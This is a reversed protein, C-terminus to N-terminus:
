WRLVDLTPIHRQQAPGIQRCSTPTEEEDVNTIPNPNPFIGKYLHVIGPTLRSTVTAQVRVNGVEGVITVWDGDNIGRAKADPVSIQLTHEFLDGTLWPNASMWSHTHYKPQTTMLLLPRTPDSNDHFGGFQLSYAYAPYPDVYGGYKTKAPDVGPKTSDITPDYANIKGSATLFKQGTNIENYLTVYPVNTASGPKAM